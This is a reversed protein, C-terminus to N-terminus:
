STWNKLRCDEVVIKDRYLRHTEIYCEVARPVLYRLSRGEGARRRLDSSSFDITPVEVVQQRLPMEPPLGLESRLKEEAWVPWGPRNVILLGALAIVGVWVATSLNYGLIYLLWFAGVLSFPVATLVIATKVASRTNLYILM